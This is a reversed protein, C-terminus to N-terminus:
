NNVITDILIKVEVVAAELTNFIEQHKYVTGLTDICTLEYHELSTSSLMLVNKNVCTISEIKM